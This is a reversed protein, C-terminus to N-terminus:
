LFPRYSLVENLGPPITANLREIWLIEQQLIIAVGKGGRTDELITELVMFQVAESNFRHYLGIHCKVTIFKGNTSYELHDGIREQITNEVYFASCVCTM